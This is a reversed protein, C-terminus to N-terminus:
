SQTAEKDQFTDSDKKGEDQFAPSVMQGFISSSWAVNLYRSVGVALETCTSKCDAGRWGGWNSKNLGMGMFCVNLTHGKHSNTVPSFISPRRASSLNPKTRGLSFRVHFPSARGQSCVGADVLCAYADGSM